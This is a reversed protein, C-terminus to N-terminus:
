RPHPIILLDKESMTFRRQDAAENHDLNPRRKKRWGYSKIQLLLDSSSKPEQNIIITISVDFMREVMLMKLYEKSIKHFSVVLFAKKSIKRLARIMEKILWYAEDKDIQQQPDEELFMRLMDTIVVLKAQTCQLLENLEHIILGALQHITFPRSVKIRDLVLKSDLGYQRAFNCVQYIDSCNGADIFIVAPSDLEGGGGVDWCCGKKPLFSRVCLRTILTNAYYYGDGNDKTGKSLVCVAAGKDVVLDLSSDIQPIDFMLKSPRQMDSAREFRPLLSSSSAIPHPLLQDEKQQQGSLRALTNREKM